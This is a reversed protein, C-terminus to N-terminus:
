LRSARTGSSCLAGERDGGWPGPAPGGTVASSGGQGREPGQVAAVRGCARNLRRRQTDPMKRWEKGSETPQLCWWAAQPSPPQGGRHPEQGRPWRYSGLAGPESSRPLRGWLFAPPSCPPRRRPRGPLQKRGLGLHGPTGAGHVHSLVASTHGPGAEWLWAARPVPSAGSLASARAQRGRLSGTDGGGVCVHTGRKGGATGSACTGNDPAAGQSICHLWGTVRGISSDGM